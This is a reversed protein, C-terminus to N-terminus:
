DPKFAFVGFGTGTKENRLLREVYAKQISTNQPLKELPLNHYKGFVRWAEAFTDNEKFDIIDFDRMFDLINSQPPLFIKHEPYLLWSDCVFIMVKDNLEKEFFCYARKYSDMRTKRDIPLGSSPIHINYVRDGKKVTVDDKQYLDYPFTIAEYQFRGIAFRTMDFYRSFWKAVFTGWITHVDYCEMLKYKLDYVTNWYVDEDVGAQKYRYYLIHSCLMYFYMHLTYQHTNIESSLANLADLVMDIKMGKHMFENVLESLKSNKGLDENLANFVDKADHPFELKEMFLHLFELNSYSLAQYSTDM